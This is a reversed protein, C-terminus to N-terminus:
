NPENWLPRWSNSKLWMPHDLENINKPGPIVLQIVYHKAGSNDPAHDRFMPNKSHMESVATPLKAQPLASHETMWSSYSVLCLFIHSALFVWSPHQGQTLLHICARIILYSSRAAFLCAREKGSSGLISSLNTTLYASRLLQLPFFHICCSHNLASFPSMRFHVGRAAHHLLLSVLPTRSHPPTSFLRM